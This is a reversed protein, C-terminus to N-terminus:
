KGAHRMRERSLCLYRYFCKYIEQYREHSLLVWCSCVCTVPWVFIRPSWMLLYRHVIWWPGLVFFNLILRRRMTGKDKHWNSTECSLIRMTRSSRFLNHNNINFAIFKPIQQLLIKLCQKNYWNINLILRQWIWSPLIMSPVSTFILHFHPWFPSKPWIL